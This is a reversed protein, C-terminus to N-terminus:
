IILTGTPRPSGINEASSESILRAINEMGATLPTSNPLPKSDVLIGPESFLSWYETVLFFIVVLVLLEPPIKPPMDLPIGISNLIANLGGEDVNFFCDENLRLDFFASSRM